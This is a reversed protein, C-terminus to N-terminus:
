FIPNLMPTIAHLAHRSINDRSVLVSPGAGRNFEGYAVKIDMSKGNTFRFNRISYYEVGTSDYSSM